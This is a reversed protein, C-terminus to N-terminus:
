AHQAVKAKELAPLHARGYGDDFRVIDDEDLYSGTQIEILELNIKGPNHLRHIVGIPIYVSENENLVIKESGKTVDAVGRVVVWHESRHHHKQLSLSAGPKVVIRKVQFRDGSDVSDYWGWPRHVKRHNKALGGAQLRVKQVIEKVNQAGDNSLVMLADPTDIISINNVGYGVVLRDTGFVLSNQSNLLIADGNVVNNDSDKNLVEWIADWSGVDSWGCAMPVVRIRNAQSSDQSIREMVAFDISESPNQSFASTSPRIFDLDRQAKQSAARCAVLMEKCYKEVLGLWVSAKLMFIGSNWLYTGLELYHKAMELAPKEKFEQAIGIRESQMSVQIYGYGTEAHTPNIGFTVVDGECAAEYGVCVAEQFQKDHKIFHDSPMVLMVPDEKKGKLAEFAALTLAPATNRAEPELLIKGNPALMAGVQDAVMFRYDHHTVIMPAMVRDLGQRLQMARAVTDQLLTAGGTLSQFQKPEKERSMPWLRTGSGGCLIVPLVPIKESM